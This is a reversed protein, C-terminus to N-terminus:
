GTIISGMALQARRCPNAILVVGCDWLGIQDSCYGRVQFDRLQDTVFQSYINDLDVDHYNHKGIKLLQGRFTM